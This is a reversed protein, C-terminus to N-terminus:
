RSAPVFGGADVRNLRSREIQIDRPGSSIGLLERMTVRLVPSGGGVGVPFALDIRASRPTGAPYGFRIGFGAAGRWGSDAGHPVDGSWMRGADAFLTLGADLYDPAPWDVAIRDELSVLLRRGGPYAEERLGRVAERGGLTMQFPSDHSWGGSAAVRMVLTHGPLRDTRLYALLDTEALVDRWRRADPGGSRLAAVSRGEASADFFFFSNGLRHGTSLAVRGFLDRGTRSGDNANPGWDGVGVGVTHTVGVGLGVGCGVGVGVAVCRGVGVAIGVGVGVARGVGVGM